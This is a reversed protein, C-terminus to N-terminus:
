EGLRREVLIDIYAHPISQDFGCGVLDWKPDEENKSVQVYLDFTDNGHDAVICVSGYIAYDMKSPAGHRVITVRSM